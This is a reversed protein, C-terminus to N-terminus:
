LQKKPPQARHQRDRQRQRKIAREVGAASQRFNGIALIQRALTAKPLNGSVWQKFEREHSTVWQLVLTRQAKITEYENPCTDILRELVKLVVPFDWVDVSKRRRLQKWAWTLGRNLESYSPPTRSDFERSKGDLLDQVNRAFRRWFDRGLEPFRCCLEYVTVLVTPSFLVGVGISRAQDVIFEHFLPDAPNPAPITGNRRRARWEVPHMQELFSDFKAELLLGVPAWSKPDSLDYSAFDPRPPEVESLSKVTAVALVDPGHLSSSKQESQM